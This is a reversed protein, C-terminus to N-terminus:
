GDSADEQPKLGGGRGRRSRPVHEKRAKDDFGLAKNTAEDMHHLHTGSTTLERKVETDAGVPGGLVALTLAKIAGHLARTEFVHAQALCREADTMTPM